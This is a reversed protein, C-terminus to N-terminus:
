WAQLTTREVSLRNNDENSEPICGSTANCRPKPQGYGALPNTPAGWGVSANFFEDVTAFLWSFDQIPVDKYDSAFAHYEGAPPNFHEFSLWIEQGAALGPITDDGHPLHAHSSGRGSSGTMSIRFPGAEASGINAVLVHVAKDGELRMEKVVLDPLLVLREAPSPVNAQSMPAVTPSPMPVRPLTQAVACTSAISFALLTLRIPLRM